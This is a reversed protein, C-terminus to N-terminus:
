LTVIKTTVKLNYEPKPFRKSTANKLAQKEHDKKLKVLFKQAGDESLLVTYPRYRGSVTIEIKSTM